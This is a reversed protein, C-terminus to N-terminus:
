IEVLEYVAATRGPALMEHKGTHRFVGRRLDRVEVGWGFTYEGSTMRTVPMQITPPEDPWELAESRLRGQFASLIVLKM